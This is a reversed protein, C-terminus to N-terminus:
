YLYLKRKSNSMIALEIECFKSTAESLNIAATVAGSASYNPSTIIVALIKM